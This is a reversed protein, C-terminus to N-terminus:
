SATVLCKIVAQELRAYKADDIRNRPAAIKARIQGEYLGANISLWPACRYSPKTPLQVAQHGIVSSGGAAPYTRGVYNYSVARRSILAERVDAPALHRLTEYGIGGHPVARTTRAVDAITDVLMDSAPPLRVPYRTALWSVTGDIRAEPFPSDRGVGFIDFTGDPDVVNDGDLDLTAFAQHMLALFAEGPFVREHRALTALQRTHERSLTLRYVGGADSPLWDAEPTGNVQGRWYEFEEGLLQASNAYNALRDAWEAASMSTASPSDQWPKGDLVTAITERLVCMSAGDALLHHVVLLLGQRGSAAVLPQLAFLPASLGDWRSTIEVACLESLVELTQDVSHAAPRTLREVPLTEHLRARMTSGSEYFSIRTADHLRLLVEAVSEVEDQTCPRGLEILLCATITHPDVYNQEFFWRQQPTLPLERGAPRV